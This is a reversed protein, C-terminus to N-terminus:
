DETVDASPCCIINRLERHYADEPQNGLVAMEPVILVCPAAPTAKAKGSGKAKVTAKAKPDITNGGKNAQVAQARNKAALQSSTLHPFECSEGTVCDGNKFAIGHRVFPSNPQTGNTSRLRSAAYSNGDSAYVDSIASPPVPMNCCEAFSIIAHEFRWSDGLPCPTAKKRM